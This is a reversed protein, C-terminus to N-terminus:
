IAGWVYGLSAIRILFYSMVGLALVSLFYVM